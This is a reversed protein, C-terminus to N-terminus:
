VQSDWYAVWGEETQIEVRRSRSRGSVARTSTAPLLLFFRVQV